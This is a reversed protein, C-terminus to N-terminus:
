HVGLNGSRVSAELRLVRQSSKGDGSNNQATRHNRGAGLDTWVARLACHLARRLSPGCLAM